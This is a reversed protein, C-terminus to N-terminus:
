SANMCSCSEAPWSPILGEVLYTQRAFVESVRPLLEDRRWIAYLDLEATCGLDRLTDAMALPTGGTTLVDDVVAIRGAAKLLERAAPHGFSFERRGSKRAGVVRPLKGPMDVAEVIELMGDPIPVMADYDQSQMSVALSHLVARLRMTNRRELLVEMNIKVDSHRRSNLVVHGDQWAGAELVARRVELNSM